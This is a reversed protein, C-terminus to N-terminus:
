NEETLEEEKSAKSKANDDLKASASGELSGGCDDDAVDEMVRSLNQGKHQNNKAGSEEDMGGARSAIEEEAREELIEQM